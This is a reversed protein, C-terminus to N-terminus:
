LEYKIKVPAEIRSEKIIKMTRSIVITKITVKEDIILDTFIGNTLFDNKQNQTILEALRFQQYQISRGKLSTPYANKYINEVYYEADLGFLKKNLLVAHIITSSTDNVFYITKIKNRIIEDKLVEIFPHDNYPIIAGPCSFIFVNPGYKRKIEYEVNSFSCVIFLLNSM